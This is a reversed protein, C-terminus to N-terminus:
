ADDWLSGILEAFIKTKELMQQGNFPPESFAGYMSEVAFRSLVYALVEDDESVRRRPFLNLLLVLDHTKPYDINHKQLGIKMRKEIFQQLHFGIQALLEDDNDLLIEAARLDEAARRELVIIDESQVM